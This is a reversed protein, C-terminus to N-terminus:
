TVLLSSREVISCSSPVVLWCLIRDIYGVTLVVGEILQSV